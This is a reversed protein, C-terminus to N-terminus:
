VFPFLLLPITFRAILTVKRGYHNNLFTYDSICDWVVSLKFRFRQCVVYLRFWFQGAKRRSKGRLNGFCFRLVYTVISTLSIFSSILMKLRLLAFFSFLIRQERQGLLTTTISCSSCRMCSSLKGNVLVLGYTVTKKVTRRMCWLLFSVIEPWDNSLLCFFSKGRLLIIM